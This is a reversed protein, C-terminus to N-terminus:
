LKLTKFAQLKLTPFAQLKFTPFPQLKLKLLPFGAKSNSFTAAWRQAANEGLIERGQWDLQVQASLTASLPLFQRCVIVIRVISFRFEHCDKNGSLWSHCYVANGIRAINLSMKSLLNIWDADQKSCSSTDMYLKQRIAQFCTLLHNM